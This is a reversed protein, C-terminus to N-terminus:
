DHVVGNSLPCTSSDENFRANGTPGSSSTTCPIVHLVSPFLSPTGIVKICNDEEEGSSIWTETGSLEVMERPLHMGGERGEGEEEDEASHVM